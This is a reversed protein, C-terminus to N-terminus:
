FHDDLPVRNKGALWRDWVQLGGTGVDVQCVGTGVDVQCVGTGVGVSLWRDGCESVVVQGWM